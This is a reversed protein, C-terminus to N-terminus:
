SLSPMWCPPTVWTATWSAVWSGWGGWSPLWLWCPLYRVVGPVFVLLQQKIPIPTQYIHHEEDDLITSSELDPTCPPDDLSRFKIETPQNCPACAITNLEDEGLDDEIEALQYPKFHFPTPDDVDDQALEPTTPTQDNEVQSPVTQENDNKTRDEKTSFFLDELRAVSDRLLKLYKSGKASDEIVYTHDHYDGGVNTFKGGQVTINRGQLMSNTSTTHPQETEESYDYSVQPTAPVRKGRRIISKKM